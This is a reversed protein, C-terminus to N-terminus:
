SDSVQLKALGNKVTRCFLLGAESTPLFAVVYRSEPRLADRPSDANLGLLPLRCLWEPESIVGEYEDELKNMDTEIRDERSSPLFESVLPLDNATLVEDYYGTDFGRQLGKFVPYMFLMERPSTTSAAYVMLEVVDRYRESATLAGAAMYYVEGTGSERALEVLADVSASDGNSWYGKATAIQEADYQDWYVLGAWFAVNPLTLVVFLVFLAAPWRASGFRRESRWWKWSFIVGLTLLLMLLGLTVPQWVALVTDGALWWIGWLPLALVSLAFGFGLMFPSLLVALATLTFQWVAHSGEMNWAAEIVGGPLFLVPKLFWYTASIDSFGTYFLHYLFGLGLLIMFWVGGYNVPRVIYVPIPEKM